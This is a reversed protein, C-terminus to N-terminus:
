QKSVDPGILAPCHGLEDSLCLFTSTENGLSLFRSSATDLTNEGIVSIKASQPFNTSGPLFDFTSFYLTTELGACIFINTCMLKQRHFCQKPGLANQSSAIIIVAPVNEQNNTHMFIHLHLKQVHLISTLNFGNFIELLLRQMLPQAEQVGVSFREDRYHVM